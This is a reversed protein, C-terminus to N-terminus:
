VFKATQESADAGVILNAFQVLCRTICEQPDNRNNREEANSVSEPKLAQSGTHACNVIRAKPWNYWTPLLYYNASWIM